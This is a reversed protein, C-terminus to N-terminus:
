AWAAAARLAEVFRARVFRLLEINAEETGRRRIETELGRIQRDTEAIVLECTELIQQAIQVSRSVAPGDTALTGRATAIRGRVETVAAMVEADAGWRREFTQLHVEVLRLREEIQPRTLTDVPADAPARTAGVVRRMSELETVAAAAASEHASLARLARVAAYTDGGPWTWGETLEPALYRLLARGEETRAIDVLDSDQTHAIMAAAVDDRDGWDLADFVRRIYPHHTPTYWAMLALTEGLGDEDLDGAATTHREIMEEPTPPARHFEEVESPDFGSGETSCRQLRLGRVGGPRADRGEMAAVAAQDADREADWEVGRGGGRQQLVHALEHAILADGTLTGPRYEGAGFAVESGVTFARASLEASLREAGSDTHVRVQGLGVGFASEMRGRVPGDLPRGPGLRAQVAAPHTGQSAPGPKAKLLVPPSEAGRSDMAWHALLQLSTPLGEPLGTIEGTAQWHATSERAREAVLPTYARASPPNELEPAFRRLIGEVEAASRRELFPFLLALYPCDDTTRGGPALVGEVARCVEARVERLYDGLPLQGRGPVVGDDVLLTAPGAAAADLPQRRIVPAGPTPAGFRVLPSPARQHDTRPPDEPPVAARAAPRLAAGTALSTWLPNEAGTEERPPGERDAPRQKGRAPAPERGEAGSKV